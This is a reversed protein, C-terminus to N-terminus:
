KPLGEGDYLDRETFGPRREPLRACARAIKRMRAVREPSPAAGVPRALEARLADLIVDTMTKGSRRALRRALAEVEANRISM